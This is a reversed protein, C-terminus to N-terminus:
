GPQAMTKTKHGTQPSMAHLEKEGQQTPDKNNETPVNETTINNETSVTSLVGANDPKASTVNDKSTNETLVSVDTDKKNLSVFEGFNGPGMYVLSLECKAVIKQESDGWTHAVTTWYLKKTHVHVHVHQLYMRSLCYLALEDGPTYDSKMDYLWDVLSDGSQLFATSSFRAINLTQDKAWRIMAKRTNSPNKKSFQGFIEFIGNPKIKGAKSVCKMTDIMYDNMYTKWLEELDRKDCKTEKNILRLCPEYPHKSLVELLESVMSAM